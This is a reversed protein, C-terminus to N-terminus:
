EDIMLGLKLKIKRELVGVFADLSPTPQHTFAKLLNAITTSESLDEIITQKQISLDLYIKQLIQAQLFPLNNPNAIKGKAEVSAKETKTFNILVKDVRVINEKTNV